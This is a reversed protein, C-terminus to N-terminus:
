LYGPPRDGSLAYGRSIAVVGNRTVAVGEEISRYRPSIPTDRSRHVGVHHQAWVPFRGEANPNELPGWVTVSLAEPTTANFLRAEFDGGVGASAVVLMETPEPSSYVRIGLASKANSRAETIAQDGRATLDFLTRQDAIPVPDSSGPNRVYIAGS